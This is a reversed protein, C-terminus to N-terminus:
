CQSVTNPELAEQLRAEEQKLYDRTEDSMDPWWRLLSRIASLRNMTNHRDM